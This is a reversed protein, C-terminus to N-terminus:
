AGHHGYVVRQHATELDQFGCVFFAIKSASVAGISLTLRVRGEWLSDYYIVYMNWALNFRDVYVM